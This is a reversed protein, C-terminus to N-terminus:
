LIRVVFDDQQDAVGPADLNAVKVGDRVYSKISDAAIGFEIGSNAPRVGKLSVKGFARAAVVTDVFWETVGSIGKVFLKKIGAVQAFDDLSDPLGLVDDRVGGFLRSSRVAGAMVFGATGAARIETHDMVGAVSVKGVNGDIDWFADLLDGGITASGLTRKTSSTDDLALDAGFDGTVLIKSAWPARLSGGIWEAATLVKVGSGLHIDTGAGIRGVGLKIGKSNGAGPMVIDAGNLIDHVKVSGISGDGTMVIGEGVLDITEANLVGVPRNGTIRGVSAFGNGGESTFKLSSGETTNVMTIEAIRVNPGTVIVGNTGSAQQVNEGQFRV